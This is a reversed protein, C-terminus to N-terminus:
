PPCLQILFFNMIERTIGLKADFRGIFLFLCLENIFPFWDNSSNQYKKEFSLLSTWADKIPHNNPLQQIKELVQQATPWQLPQQQQNNNNNNNNNNNSNSHDSNNDSINGSNEEFLFNDSNSSSVFQQGNIQKQPQRFGGHVHPYAM